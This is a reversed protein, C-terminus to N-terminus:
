RGRRYMVVRTALKTLESVVLCAFLAQGVLVLPAATTQSGAGAWAWSLAAPVTFCPSWMLAWYANSELKLKRIRARGWAGAVCM